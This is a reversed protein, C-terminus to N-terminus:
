VYFGIGIAVRVHEIDLTIIVAPAPEIRIPRVGVILPIEVIADDEPKAVRKM